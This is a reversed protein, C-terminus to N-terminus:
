RKKCFSFFHFKTKKSKQKKENKYYNLTKERPGKRSGVTAPKNEAPTETDPRM